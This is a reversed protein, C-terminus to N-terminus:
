IADGMGGLAALAEAAIQRMDEYTTTERVFQLVAVSRRDGLMGLAEVVACAVSPELEIAPKANAWGPPLQDTEKMHKILKDTRRKAEAAGLM